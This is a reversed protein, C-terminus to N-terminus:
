AAAPVLGNDVAPAASSLGNTAADPATEVVPAHAPEVASLATLGTAAPPEARATAVFFVAACAVTVSLCAPLRIKM